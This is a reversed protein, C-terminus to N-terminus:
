EAVERLREAVDALDDGGSVQVPRHSALVAKLVQRHENRSAALRRDPPTPQAVALTRASGDGEDEVM